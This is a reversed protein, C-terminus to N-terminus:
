RCKVVCAAKKILIEFPDDKKSLVRDLFDRDLDLATSLYSAVQLKEEIDRPSVYILPFKKTTAVLVPGDTSKIYIDGRNIKESELKRRDAIGDYYEFQLYALDFLRYGVLAFLAIVLILFFTIRVSKEDRRQM